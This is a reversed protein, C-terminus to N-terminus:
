RRAGVAPDGSVLYIDLMWPALGEAVGREHARQVASGVSQSRGLLAELFALSLRHAPGDLSLGAPAVSAIAGGGPSLVLSDSLGMIGPATSDGAACTWAAFVPAAGGNTLAPVDAVNLFNESALQTASGHGDYVVASFARESWGSLLRDRVPDVPHYLKRAELGYSVAAAATEDSNAHFNGATDPNDAVVAVTGSGRWSEYASLKAVYAMVQENTMAQIRGLSYEPRRDGDVDAYRADSSYIGWPTAAMRLPILSEGYGRLDRHDLTGRGLLVVHEPAQKWNWRAYDLFSEIAASDTRGSSFEDYIDQLWVIETTFRSSRYRALAEAGKALSAPAIVLYQARHEPSRLNSPVDLEVSATRARDTVLYDGAVATFSVQWGGRGDVGITVDRREKTSSRGMEIVRIGPSALGDVTLPGPSADRVWLSGDRATMRRWYSVEIDDVLVMSYPAGGAAQAHLTVTVRENGALLSQDFSTELSVLGFGDWSAEGPVPQGNVSLSVLHDAGAGTNTGGRLAVRLTAMGSSAPNPLDFRLSKEPTYPAYTYDWYWPDSTEERNAWPLLWVEQEAVYRDRFVGVAGPAPGKGNAVSMQAGNGLRAQYANSRTELTEYPVGVFYFADEGPQYRYPVVKGGVSLELNGSALAGRLKGEATGLVSSLRALTVGYWGEPGTALRGAGGGQAEL